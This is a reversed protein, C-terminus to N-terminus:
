AAGVPVLLAAGALEPSRGSVEDWSAPRASSETFSAWVQNVLYSTAALKILSVDGGDKEQGCGLQSDDDWAVRRALEKGDDFRM